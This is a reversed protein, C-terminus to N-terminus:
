ARDHIHEAMSLSEHLKFHLFDDQAADFDNCWSLAEVKVVTACRNKLSSSISRQAGLQSQSVSRIQGMGVRVCVFRDRCEIRASDELLDHQQVM